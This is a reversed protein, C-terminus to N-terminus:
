LVAGVDNFNKSGAANAFTALGSQRLVLEVGNAVFPFFGLQTDDNVSISGADAHSGGGAAGLDLVAEISGVVVQFEEGPVAGEEIRLSAQDDLIVDVV